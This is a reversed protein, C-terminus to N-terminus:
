FGPDRPTSDPRQFDITAHDDMSMAALFSESSQRTLRRYDDISLLAYAPRGDDTVTVPELGAARMAARVDASFDQDSIAPVTEEKWM